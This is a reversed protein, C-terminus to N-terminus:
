SVPTGAHHSVEVQAAQAEAQELFVAAAPPAQGPPNAFDLEVAVFAAEVRERFRTVLSQFDIVAHGNRWVALSLTKRSIAEIWLLTPM